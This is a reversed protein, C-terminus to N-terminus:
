ADGSTGGEEHEHRHPIRVTFVSGGSAQRRACVGGGLIKALTTALRLGFGLGVTDSTAPSDVVSAQLILQQIDESPVGIGTDRVEIEVARGHDLPRLSLTVSGGKPTYNIANDLLCSLLRELKSRDSIVEVPFPHAEEQLTLRKEHALPAFRRVAWSLVDRLDLQVPSYYVEGVELSNLLLVSEILNLLRQSNAQIREFTSRQETSLQPQLQENLIDNFGMIANLPTRLEHSLNDLFHDRFNRARLTSRRREVAREVLDSIQPVDFPKTVYDFVRHRLGRIASDLSAYGTVVIIEIDPDFRKIHEMVETGPMGPMRLDLTVVDIPEKRLVALAEEGGPATFVDYNSKFVMRLSEAPGREDDVILLSARDEVM